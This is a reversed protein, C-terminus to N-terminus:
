ICSFTISNKFIKVNVTSFTGRPTTRYQLLALYTDMDSEKCKSLILKAIKVGSEALGNSRPLYPSSTTHQIGWEFIFNKFGASRFPPGNDRVLEVPIGHRSFISKLIPVLIAASTTSVSNLEIYNSYYGKGLAIYATSTAEYTGKFVIDHETHIEDKYNWYERVLKDVKAKCSPWGDKCYTKLIQMSEDENTANQLWKLKQNDKEENLGSARIYIKFSQFWKKWNDCSDGQCQLPSINNGSVNILMPKSNASDSQM